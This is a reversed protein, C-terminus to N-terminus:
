FFRFNEAGRLAAKSMFKLAQGTDMCEVFAIEEARAVIADAIKHMLKKRADGPMAAWEAFAGKAAKAARDVDEAKGRAVKAVPKLDVPSIIEFTTGDAAPVSEGAIHNLVGDAKFRALYGEAKAINEDLKSM